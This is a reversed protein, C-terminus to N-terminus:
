FFSFSLIGNTRHSFVLIGERIFVIHISIGLMMYKVLDIGLFLGVVKSVDFIITVMSVQIHSRINQCSERLAQKYARLSLILNQRHKMEEDLRANYVEMQHLAAQARQILVERDAYM